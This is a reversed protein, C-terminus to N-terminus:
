GLQRFFDSAAAYSEPTGIDLFCGGCRFGAVVKGGALWGPLLDKELSLRTQPLRELLRRRILYIGANIWGPGADRRKEDFRLITEDAGIDVRGYRSTDDVHTLVLSLDAGRSQHWAFFADLDVHCYSDGNLLLVHEETFHALAHVVAGGTGLAEPEPSHILRLSRYAEGIVFHVQDAQYGTLLIAQSFGADILQDLLFTLFPRGEVTALVKPRDAVVSRLRMGRGGALIAPVAQKRDVVPKSVVGDRTRTM